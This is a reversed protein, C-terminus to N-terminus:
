EYVPVEKPVRVKLITDWFEILLFNMTDIEIFAQKGSNVRLGLTNISQIDEFIYDKATGLAPDTTIIDKFKSENNVLVEVTDNNFHSEFILYLKGDRLYKENMYSRGFTKDYKYYNYLIEIDYIHNTSRHDVKDKCGVIIILTLIFIYYKLITNRM